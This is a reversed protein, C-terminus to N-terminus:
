SGRPCLYMVGVRQGGPCPADQLTLLHEGERAALEQYEDIRIVDTSAIKVQEKTLFSLKYARWYGARAVHVGREILGDAVGRIVNPDGGSYYHRFLDMHDKASVGAWVGLLILVGIRALRRPELALFAALTGIPIFLTLMLYRDVIGVAPRTAVYGAAALAGTVALFWGFAPSASGERRRRWTLWLGRLGALAIGALFPWRMWDRGQAGLGEDVWATGALRPLDDHVMVWLRHPWESPVLAIRDAINGVQSGASGRVLQGRTGPGMLDAFPKLAEIGQWVACFAVFALLWQRATAM